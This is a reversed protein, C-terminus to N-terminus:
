ITVSRTCDTNSHFFRIKWYHCSCWQTVTLVCVNTTIENESSFPLVCITCAYELVAVNSSSTKECCTQVTKVDTDCVFPMCTPLIFASSPILLPLCLSRSFTNILDIESGTHFLTITYWQSGPYTFLHAVQSEFHVTAPINRRWYAFSPLLKEQDTLLRM